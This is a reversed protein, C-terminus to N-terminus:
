VIRSDCNPDGSHNIFRAVSGRMTADVIYDDDLRFLYCDGGLSAREYLRERVDAVPQRLVEGTYECVFEGTRLDRAAFLGYGHIVSRLARVRGELSEALM